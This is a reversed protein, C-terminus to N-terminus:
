YYKEELEILLDEFDNWTQDFEDTFYVEADVISSDAFQLEVAIDWYSCVEVYSDTEYDYDYWCGDYDYEKAYANAEAIVGSNDTYVLSLNADDNVADAMAEAWEQESLTEDEDLVWLKDGLAKINVDGVLKVDMIQFYANANKLIEEIHLESYDDTYYDWEGDGYYVTDHIESYNDNINDESWDGGVEGYLEIVTQNNESFNFKVDLNTNASHNLAASLSFDGVTLTTSLKTPLGDSAFTGSYNFSTVVSGNYTLAVNVSTPVEAPLEMDYDPDEWIPSTINQTSVNSITLNADNSLSAESGPFEFVIANSPAASYDWEDTSSNWSYTGAADNFVDMIEGEAQTVTKINASMLQSANKKEMGYLMEIIRGALNSNNNFPSAMDMYSGMNVMVDIAPENSLNEFTTYMATGTEELDAKSDEVPVPTFTSTNTSDNPNTNVNSNNNKEECAVFFVSLSLAIFSLKKLTKM